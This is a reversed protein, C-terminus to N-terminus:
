FIKSFLEKWSIWGNDKYYNSPDSPIYNPLTKVLCRWSDRNKVNSVNKSVFLIFEDYDLFVKKQNQIKDNSLFDSWNVWGRNKYYREPRRPIFVPLEIKKWDKSTLNTLYNDIIYKKTDEYSIYSVRKNDQIKNTSLFDGWSIWGRKLFVERPSRPIITPLNSVNNYWKTRSDICVLNDIVWKKCELYTINYKISSGGLGGESTNVLNDFKSIWEKEKESWENYDVIELIEYLLKENNKLLNKIWYNKHTKSDNRQYIHRKLRYEPNDSKGVYRIVKDKDSFLGYIFTKKM